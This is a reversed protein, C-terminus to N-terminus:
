DCGPEVPFCNILGVTRQLILAADLSSIAGNGSVDALTASTGELTALGVVHTLIESADRASVTGDGTADGFVLASGDTATITVTATDSDGREDVVLLNVVYTGPTDFTKTVIDGADNTGDPYSWDYAVLVGDEDSSGSADLTITFPAVGSLASVQIDAVPAKNESIDGGGTVIADEMERRSWAPPTKGDFELLRTLWFHAIIEDGIPGPHIEDRAFAVSFNDRTPTWVDPGAHFNPLNRNLAEALAYKENEIQPEQVKKYIHTAMFVLDAGDEQALQNYFAIADAGQEIRRTDNPGTIGELRNESFVWQLSQQALLIVPFNPESELAPQLTKKWKSDREMADLDIFKAIPTGSEYTNIVEIVQQGNFYRNLKRQLISPWNRTTSYGNAVFVRREGSFLEPPSSQAQVPQRNSLFLICFLVLFPYPIGSSPWTVKM